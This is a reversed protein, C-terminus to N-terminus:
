GSTAPLGLLTEANGHAIREKDAPSLPLHDFFTRAVSMSAYPYDTSFLIRDVGVQMWLNLFTPLWNFGAFTYHVNRRLYVSVPQTLKTAEVPFAVDFRPLMFPLGEGMHGIIIQLKPYRDFIGSLILRLIHNATDIHWGWGAGALRATIDASFNGTYAAKTVEQSPFTPHLYIPLKLAEAREFIPWFFADDLYRGRVHGNIVAGKFGYDHVCRELEAAAGQPEAVAVTAFGALRRPHKQVAEALRENAERAHEVAAQPELQEVGPATFSLVQMDIGVEDMAGIRGSDLDCLQDVLPGFGALYRGAGQVFAHTAFHEELTIFRM